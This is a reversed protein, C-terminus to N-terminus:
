LQRGRPRQRVEHRDAKQVTVSRTAEATDGNVRYIVKIKVEHRGSEKLGKVSVVESTTNSLQVKDSGEVVSWNFSGELFNGEAKMTVTDVM